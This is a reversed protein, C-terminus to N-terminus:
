RYRHSYIKLSVVSGLLLGVGLCLTLVPFHMANSALINTVVIGIFGMLSFMIGFTSVACLPHTCAWVSVSKSKFVKEKSVVFQSFVLAGVLGLLFFRGIEFQQAIPEIGMVAGIPSFLIILIISTRCM